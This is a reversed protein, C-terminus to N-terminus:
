YRNFPKSYIEFDDVGWLVCRRPNVRWAKVRSMAVDYRDLLEQRARGPGLAQSCLLHGDNQWPDASHDSGDITPRVASRVQREATVRLAQEVIPRVIDTTRRSYQQDPDSFNTQTDQISTNQWSFDVHASCLACTLIRPRMPHTLESCLAWAKHTCPHACPHTFVLSCLARVQHAVIGLITSLAM